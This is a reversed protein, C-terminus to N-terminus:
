KFMNVDNIHVHNKNNKKIAPIFKLTIWRRFLLTENTLESSLIIKYLGTENIYITKNTLTLKDQESVNKIIEITNDLITIVNHANFWIEDNISIYNINYKEKDILTLQM